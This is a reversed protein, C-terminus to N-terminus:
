RLHNGRGKRPSHKRALMYMEKYLSLPSLDGKEVSFLMEQVINISSMNCKMCLKPSRRMAIKKISDVEGISRHAVDALPLTKEFDHCCLYYRGDWGIFVSMFPAVCFARIKWGSLLRKAEAQLRQDRIFSYGLDLAGGRNSIEFVVFDTVGLAGWFRKIKHLRHTNHRGVTIAVKLKSRGCSVDLFDHVNKLITGFSLNHVAEYRRGIDSANVIVTSLGYDVLRSSLERTLLLGNTSLGCDLRQERVVSVFDVVHRHMLPEGLGCLHVNTLVTLERARQVARHFTPIDIFGRRPVKDRPCISCVTNCASTLEIDVARPPENTLNIISACLDRIIALTSEGLDDIPSM